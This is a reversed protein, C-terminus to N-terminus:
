LSVVAEFARFLCRLADLSFAGWLIKLHCMDFYLQLFFGVHLWLENSCALVNKTTIESWNCTFM